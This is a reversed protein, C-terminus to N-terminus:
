KLLILKEQKTLDNTRMRLFYIGSPNNEAKWVINQTGADLKQDILTEVKQGKINFVEILVHQDEKLSFEINTEPNFPNPYINNLATVLPIQQDNSNPTFETTVVESEGDDYVASVGAVHDGYVDEFMYERIEVFDQFEDDLYVNYGQLERTATVRDANVIQVDDLKILFQDTVEHHRWAINITSGAWQQLSFTRQQWSNDSLTEETVLDTFYQPETGETSIMVSYHENPYFEDQSGIWYRLESLGGVQISPSILWNDPTLAGATPHYSQSAISSSGSHPDQVYIYWGYGDGDEDLNTWGQPPIIGEFGEELEQGSGGSGPASWTFLATNNEQPVVNPLSPEDDQITVIVIDDDTAEGDDVQLTFEFETPDVVQPATFQPTASYPDDLMIGTPALWMFALDETEVDWSASGDLIVVNGDRSSIDMGADAHPLDNVSNVTVTVDDSASLRRINDTVTFTLVESGFWNESATVTVILANFDVDLEVNGDVFLELEDEDVDSVFDSFDIELMEDENFSFEAPLEIEPAHNMYNVTVVLFDSTSEQGDSVTLTIMYETDETVFPATFSTIAQTPEAITIDTSASWLYTIADGDPDYSNSGDLTGDAGSLVGFDDGADAVPPHPLGIDNVIVEGDVLNTLAGTTITCSEIDLPSIGYCIADFELECLEGAGSIPIYHFYDLVLEGAEDSIVQLSAGALISNATNYGTYELVQPDYSFHLEFSSESWEEFFETANIPVSVSQGDNIEYDDCSLITDEPYFINVAMTDSATARFQNDNVTFIMDESGHWGTNYTFTVISGSIDVQIDDEGYVSIFLEDGDIDDMFEAFDMEAAAEAMFTMQEPLQLVPADNIPNVIVMVSATTIDRSQDDSVSLEISESGNWNPQSSLHLVADTVWATIHESGEASFSLEDEEIDIAFNSIDLSFEGDENFQFSAPLSWIPADNVSSVVVEVVDSDTEGELGTVEFTFTESGFWNEAPIFDVNFNDMVVSISEGGTYTLDAAYGTIFQGFNVSYTQDEDTTFQEPLEIEPPIGGGLVIGGDAMSFIQSSNYNLVYEGEGEEGSSVEQVWLHLVDGNLWNSFQGCNVKVYSDFAPYYCDTTNQDLIEGPNSTLWAQFVVDGSDPVANASNRIEVYVPHPGPRNAALPIVVM